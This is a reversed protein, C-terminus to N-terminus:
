LDGSVENVKTLALEAGVEQNGLLHSGNVVAAQRTGFSRSLRCVEAEESVRIGKALRRIKRFKRIKRFYKKVASKQPPHATAINHM